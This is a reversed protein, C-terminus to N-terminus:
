NRAMRGSPYGSGHVARWQISEDMADESTSYTADTVLEFTGPQTIPTLNKEDFVHCQSTSYAWGKQPIGRIRFSNGGQGGEGRDLLFFYDTVRTYAMKQQQTLAGEDQWHWAPGTGWALIFQWAVPDDEDASDPYKVSPCYFTRKDGKTGDEYGHPTPGVIQETTFFSLEMPWCVEAALITNEPLRGDNESAYLLLGMGTFKQQAACVVRRGQERARSLAPMLIGMLLAIVAIVVLLEILTFARGLGTKGRRGTMANGKDVVGFRWECPRPVAWM